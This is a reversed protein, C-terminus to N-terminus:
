PNCPTGDKYLCAYATCANTCRSCSNPPSPPCPHMCICLMYQYGPSLNFTGGGDEVCQGDSCNSTHSNAIRTGFRDFLNACTQCGTCDGGPCSMISKLRFPGSITATIVQSTCSAGNCSEEIGGSCQGSTCKTTSICTCNQAQATSCIITIGVLLGAVSVLVRWSLKKMIQSRNQFPAVASLKM